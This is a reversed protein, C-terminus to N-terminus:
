PLKKFGHLDLWAILEIVMLNDDHQHRGRQVFTQLIEATVMPFAVSHVISEYVGHRLALVRASEDDDDYFWIEPVGLEAYVTDRQLNVYSVDVEIALDPPPDREPDYNESAKVQSVNQVYYCEDPELGKRDVSKKLTTSGVCQIPTRTYLAITEVIRALTKKIWEHRKMSSMIELVGDNYTHRFKRDGFLTLLHEYAEWSVDHLVIHEVIEPKAIM